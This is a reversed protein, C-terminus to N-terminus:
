RAGHNSVYIADAGNKLALLADESCMIGKAVVPMGTKDKVFKIMEWGFRDEKIAAM